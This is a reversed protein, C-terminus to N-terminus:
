ALPRHLLTWGGVSPPEHHPQPVAGRATRREERGSPAPRARRSYPMMRFPTPSHHLPLVPSKPLEQGPEFGPEGAEPERGGGVCGCTRAASPPTADESTFAGTTTTIAAPFPVRIRDFVGFTRCSRHPRGITAQGTAAAKSAPALFTTTTSPGSRSSASCRGSPTMWATCGTASPVPPATSAAQSCKSGPTGTTTSEPSTGSTRADAMASSTAACSAAPARAVMAVVTRSSAVPYPRTTRSASPANSRTTSVLVGPSASGSCRRRPSILVPM